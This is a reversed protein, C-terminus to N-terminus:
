SVAAVVADVLGDVTHPDAEATVELGTARVASSAIPGISVIISPIRDAGVADVLARVASGSAFAVVDCEMLQELEAANPRLAVNRYAEVVAVEWGKARLGDPLVRRAQDASAVLVRRRDSSSTRAGSKQPTAPADGRGAPEPFADVLGEATHVSPILDVSLGADILVRATGPGVAAVRTDPPLDVRQGDRTTSGLSRLGAVVRAAGNPSTVVLWSFDDVAALGHRLALGGDVPDEMQIVPITVVEFGHAVLADRLPGAQDAARTVAVRHGNGPLVPNM